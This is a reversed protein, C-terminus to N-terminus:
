KTRWLASLIAFLQGRTKIDAIPRPDSDGEGATYYLQIGNKSNFISLVETVVFGHGLRLPVSERITDVTVPTDDLLECLVRAATCYGCRCDKDEGLTIVRAWRLATERDADKM